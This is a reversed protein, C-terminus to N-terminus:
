TQTYKKKRQEIRKLDDATPQFEDDSGFDKMIGGIKEVPQITSEVVDELDENRRAREGDRKRQRSRSRDEDNRRMGHARDQFRRGRGDMRNWNSNERQPKTGFRLMRAKIRDKDDLVDRSMNRRNDGFQNTTFNNNNDITINDNNNSNNNNNIRNMNRNTNRNTYRNRNNNNYNNNYNNNRKNINRSEFKTRMSQNFANTVAEDGFRKRREALKEPTLGDSIDDDGLLSQISFDSKIYNKKNKNKDKNNDDDDNNDTDKNGNTEDKKLIM